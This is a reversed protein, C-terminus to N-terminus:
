FQVITLLNFLEFIEISMKQNLIIPVLIGKIKVNQKIKAALIEAVIIFLLASLPCGQRVGRKIFFEESIWGYNMVRGNANSYLTKIWRIFSEKFRLEKLLGFLFDHNITDFGKKFDLSMIIAPTETCQCYDIVDQVTRICESASRNKM